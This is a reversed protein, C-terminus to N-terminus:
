AQISAMLEKFLASSKFRPFNDKDMLKYIEEKAPQFMDETLEMIEDGVLKDAVEKQVSSKLNM